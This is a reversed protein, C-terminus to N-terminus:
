LNDTCVKVKGLPIVVLRKFISGMVKCHHRLHMCICVNLEVYMCNLSVFMKFTRIKWGPFHLLMYLLCEFCKRGFNNQCHKKRRIRQIRVPRPQSKKQNHRAIQTTKHLFSRPQPVWLHQLNRNQKSISAQKSNNLTIKSQVMTFWWWVEM